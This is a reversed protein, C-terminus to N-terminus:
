RTTLKPGIYVVRLPEDAKVPWSHHVRYQPTQIKGHYPCFIKHRPNAPDIFTLQNRFENKEQESSDSFSAGRGGNGKRGTWHATYLKHGEDTRRGDTDFALKMRSLIDFIVLIRDAAGSVFPHGELPDFADNAFLLEPFRLLSMEALQRWTTIQVPASQLYCTVRDQCWFNQVATDQREGDSMVLAVPIPCYEWNSPTLSVTLRDLGNICCWAAEGVASDTVVAGGSELYDDQSHLRVDDWFPGQRTLWSLLARREDIQLSSAAQQMSLNPGVLANAFNRHCSFTRGFQRAIRRIAMIQRFAARFAEFNYFQGHLSLDNVLFEM